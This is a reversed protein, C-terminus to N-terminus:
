KPPRPVLCSVPASTNGSADTATISADGKLTIHWDVDGAGPKQNPTAGPAQTLKITTGSPFPGFTASSGTDHITVTPNPDVADSATLVYFGDPNQGSKPNNGAKPVNGGPNTSAPCAVTPPTTDVWDKTATDCVSAGAGNTFCGQIADQGLGALGQVGVYTFSTTGAGATTGSGTAPSNPGSLISFDVPIDNVPDGFDDTVLADVTHTTGPTGLENVATPPTLDIAAACGHVAVTPSPFTVSHGEADTYTVSDNVQELGGPKTPDHTITYSMTVTESQLDAITWTLVNGAQGVTGTSAAPGSVAFHDSVTATVTIDTAAPTVVAAGIAEFVATLDGANPAIFVHSSDPDTAWDQLQGQDVDGLGITFIETGAARAAAADNDPDGGVTTQGDTFIIMIDNSSGGVLQAQGLQIAAEHNTGGTAALSNVAAKVANAATTLAQNVTATDAFSVVGVRSGNAIVDDLTGDTGEDIIDVFQSAGAKLNTLPAGLMSGSRDLVLVIDAPEGAIGTEGVLTLTVTTSGDCSIDPSAVTADASVTGTAALAPSSGAMLAVAMVGGAFGARGLM